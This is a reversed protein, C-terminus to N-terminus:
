KQEIEESIFGSHFIDFVHNEYLEKIYDISYDAEDILYIIYKTQHYLEELGHELYFGQDVIVIDIKRLSEVGFDINIPINKEDVIKILKENFSENKSLLRVNIKLSNKM